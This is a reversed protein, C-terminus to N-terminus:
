VVESVTVESLAVTVDVVYDPRQRQEGGSISSFMGYVVRGFQDRFLVPQGLFATLSNYDDRDLRRSTVTVTISDGPATIARRRGNAYVRVQSPISQVFSETSQPFEVVGSLNSVLAIMPKTLTLTTM